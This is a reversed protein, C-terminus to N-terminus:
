AEEPVFGRLVLTVGLLTALGRFLFLDIHPEGLAQVAALGNAVAFLVFGAASWFLVRSPTRSHSHALFVACALSVFICLLYVTGSWDFM